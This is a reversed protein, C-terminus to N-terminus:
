KSDYWLRDLGLLFCGAVLVIETILVPKLDEYITVPGAILILCLHALIFGSLAILLLDGILERRV